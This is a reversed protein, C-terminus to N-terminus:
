RRVIPLTIYSANPGAHHITNTAVVGRTEFENRGGTNLNRVHKPFNSSTIEIRIRHGPLFTNATTMASLDLKYIGGPSMFVEKDFGERYRARLITDDLIYATGDPAVDVLKVAFDTDKASSSVYLIADIFGAITVAERLPETSYVLVDNRVEVPRQDFAGATVLGGNCCDGGGITQVPAMPDYVFSDASQRAPPADFTLKGDGYVSNARGASQLYMRTTTANAPPWEGASRWANDGMSYYRVKPTSSPFANQDGKLFRDWFKWVEGQYDFSTDGLARDGSRANPSGFYSCHPNPAVIVYQNDRVQADAGKARAHNYVAMNPGVSVDYWTNFHLAPVGWGMNDHYLGSGNTYWYPDAPGNADIFEEYTGRPEGLGTLWESVPLTKTRQQWNVTPKAPNLDSYQALRRRIEPTVDGPYQARLPNDTGYIWVAFLTRPVGGRYWNGHEAYEGVRGIGAGASQPIMAAHAPHDMAALALQWEATSSCGVTGVKGSSWPQSAIWSLMDYGDTQPYGLIKYKGQSLYRGRENQFIVAYGRRLAEVTMRLDSGGLTNMNYPTRVFIVPAKTNAERPRYIDTALGIGDRMKVLTKTESVGLRAIEARLAADSMSATPIQASATTFGIMLAAAIAVAQAIKM